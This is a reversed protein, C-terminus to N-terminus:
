RTSRAVIYPIQMPFQLDFNAINTVTYIQVGCVYFNLCLVITLKKNLEGGAKRKYGLLGPNCCILGQNVGNKTTRPM